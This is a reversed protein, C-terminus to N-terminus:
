LDYDLTYRVTQGDWQYGGRGTLGQLSETASGEVVLWTASGAGSRMRGTIQLM